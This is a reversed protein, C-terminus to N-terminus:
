EDSPLAAVIWLQRPSAGSEDDVPRVRGCRALNFNLRALPFVLCVPARTRYNATTASENINGAVDPRKGGAIIDPLRDSAQLATRV